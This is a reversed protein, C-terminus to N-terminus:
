TVKKGPKTRGFSVPVYSTFRDESGIPNVKGSSNVPTTVVIGFNKNAQSELIGISDVGPFIEVSSFSLNRSFRTTRPALAGTSGSADPVVQFISPFYETTFFPPM